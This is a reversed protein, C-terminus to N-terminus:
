NSGGHCQPPGAEGPSTGPLSQALYLYPLGTGAPLPNQSTSHQNLSEGDAPYLERLISQLRLRGVEYAERDRAKSPALRFDRWANGAREGKDKLWKGWYVDRAMKAEAEWLAQVSVIRHLASQHPGNHLCFGPRHSRWAMRGGEQVELRDESLPRPVQM